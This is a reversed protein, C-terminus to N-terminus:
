YTNYVNPMLTGAMHRRPDGGRHIYATHTDTTDQEDIRREILLDRIISIGYRKRATEWDDNGPMTMHRMDSRGSGDEEQM